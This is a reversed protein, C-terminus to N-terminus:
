RRGAARIRAESAKLLDKIDGSFASGEETPGTFGGAKMRRYCDSCYGKGGGRLVGPFISASPSGCSQCIPDNPNSDHNISKAGSSGPRENSHGLDALIVACKPCETADKEIKARCMPCYRYYTATM